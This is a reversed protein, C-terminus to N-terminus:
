KKDMANIILLGITLGIAMVSIARAFEYLFYTM